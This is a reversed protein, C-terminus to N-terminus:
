ATEVRTSSRDDLYRLLANQLAPLLRGRESGLAWFSPRRAPLGLKEGSCRQVLRSDFGLRAASEEVFEAWSVAGENAVHWIGAEGDILLDLCRNVLDPIYTPSVIWDDVAKISQGAAIRSLAATLYNRDDWPSFFASSRVVLADPYAAMVRREAAAKSRGYVSLPLVPDSEVLPYTRDGGFVLDSSFTLLQIQRSACARALNKAGVANLLHCNRVDVEANDVAVYGAANVVGWPGYKDLVKAISARSTVDLELRSAAVFKLGRNQCEHVFGQALMGNRGVILLPKCQATPVFVDAKTIPFTSDAVSPYLFRKESQWWGVTAAVPHLDREDKALSRITKALISPRPQCNGLEFVGPEYHGTDRTVLSNWNYCGLLNWATVARLAIGDRRLKLAAQWADLFWRLQAERHCHIHVETMAMPLKYRHWAERLIGEWGALEVGAVRVAEVDAYGQRGNGGHTRVPYREMREDLFREGVVYYNCGLILNQTPNDLFWQLENDNIGAYKLFNWMLMDPRLRGTLLDFTVWRRENEFEAQYMLAPTSYVKAMDETQVLQANPNVDRVAQMALTVGRCENILARAFIADSGGHPYWHGYLGSFRATTLPENVPCYREVWPYRRAVALAYDALGTAFSDDDLQTYAPGSGHHVLGVIPPLALERLKKLRADAWSWDASPLGQPATREWLIPYRLASFGLEAFRDLDSERHDHGSYRLQDLYRSGVRNVTSEIGGWIEPVTGTGSEM